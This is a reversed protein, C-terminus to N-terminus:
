EGSIGQRRYTHRTDGTCRNGSIGLFKMDGTCTIHIEQVKTGPLEGWIGHRRDGKCRNGDIGLFEM